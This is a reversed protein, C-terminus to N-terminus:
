ISFAYDQCNGAKSASQNKDYDSVIRRAKRTLDKTQYKKRFRFSDTTKIFANYAILRKASTLTPHKRFSKVAKRAKLYNRRRMTVHDKYIRYGLADMHGDKKFSILKYDDHLRLGMELLKEKILSVAKHLDKASQGLLDINDLYLLCHSLLRVRKVEQSKTIRLKYCKEQIFHYLESLYLACLDISLVSGIILGQKAGKLLEEILWLLSDNAIHKNLFDMIKTHDISPYCHIIDATVGYRISPDDKLWRSIHDKGWSAGRGKQCCIQYEGIRPLLDSLAEKAVYNYFQRKIDEIGIERQKKSAKDYITRYVVPGVKIKRNVIEYSLMMAIAYTSGEHQAMLVQFDKRRYTESWGKKEICKIICTHIYEVDAIDVDKCKRKM